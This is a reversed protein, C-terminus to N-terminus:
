APMALAAGDADELVYKSGGSTFGGDVAAADYAHLLAADERSITRARTTTLGWVGGDPILWYSVGAIRLHDVDFLAQQILTILNATVTPPPDNPM